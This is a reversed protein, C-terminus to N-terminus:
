PLAPFHQVEKGLTHWEGQPVRSSIEWARSIYIRAQIAMFIKSLVTPNAWGEPEAILKVESPMVGSPMTCTNCDSLWESRWHLLM